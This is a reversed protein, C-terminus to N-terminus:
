PSFLDRYVKISLILNETIVKAFFFDCIKRLQCMHYTHHTHKYSHKAYMKIM